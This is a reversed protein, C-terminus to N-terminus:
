AKRTKLWKELDDVRVDYLWSGVVAGPGVCRGMLSPKGSIVRCRSWNRPSNGGRGYRVLLVYGRGEVQGDVLAATLTEILTM